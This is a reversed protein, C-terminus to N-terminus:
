RQHRHHLAEIAEDEGVELRELLEVGDLTPELGEVRVSALAVVVDQRGPRSRPGPCPGAARDPVWRAAAAAQQDPVLRSAGVLGLGREYDPRTMIALERDPVGM